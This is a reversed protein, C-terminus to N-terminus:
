TELDVTWARVNFADINRSVLDVAPTENTRFVRETAITMGKSTLWAIRTQAPGQAPGWTVAKYEKLAEEPQKLDKELTEAIRFQAQSSVDHGPYKSVVRRWDGLADAYKKQEYNMQGFEFMVNPAGAHLPYKALFVEWLK